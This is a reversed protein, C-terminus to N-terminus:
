FKVNIYAHDKLQAIWDQYIDESKQQYVYSEVERRVEELSRFQPPNKEDMRIIHLGEVTKVPQSIEGPELTKLVSEIELLLEGQRVLGLSGGRSAEVGSSYQSALKAFDGGQTLTVRVLKARNMTQKPTEGFRPQILIQSIRYEEPLMFQSVHGDYYQQLEAESVMVGSRVEIDVIKLLTLHEKVSQKERASVTGANEGEGGIQQLAQDVEADSVSVGRERAVQMQLKREIMRNLAIYELQQIRRDLEEGSYRDRLRQEAVETEAKLESFAIIDTNVVAVIRDALDAWARSSPVLLAASVAAVIIASRM